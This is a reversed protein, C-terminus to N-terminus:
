IEPAAEIVLDADGIETLQTTGSIRQLTEDRDQETVKGIKIGKALNREISQRGRAVADADVDRMVVAYGAAAAVQAIGHGMTGAGLVAITGISRASAPNHINGDSNTSLTDRSFRPRVTFPPNLEPWPRAPARRTRSVRVGITISYTCGFVGVYKCSLRTLLRLPLSPSM